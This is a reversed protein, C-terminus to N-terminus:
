QSLQLVQQNTQSQILEFLVNKAEPSLQEIQMDQLQAHLHNVQGVHRNVVEAAPHWVERQRVKLWHMAAKVDPPLVKKIRKVQVMKDMPMKEGDIEIASYEEEIYKYGVARKYLSESVKLDAMLGGRKAAKAFLPHQNKWSTITDAGVQFYEAMQQNTAGLRAMHEVARLEARSFVRKKCDKSKTKPNVGFRTRIM